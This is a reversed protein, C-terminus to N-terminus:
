KEYTNEILDWEITCYGTKTPANKSPFESVIMKIYKNEGTKIIWIPEDADKSNFLSIKWRDGVVLKNFQQRVLAYNRFGSASVAISNVDFGVKDLEFSSPDLAVTSLTNYAEIGSTESYELATAGHFLQIFPCGMPKGDKEAKITRIVMDVQVNQYMEDELLAMELAGGKQSQYSFDFGIGAPNRGACVLYPNAATFVVKSDPTVVEKQNIVEDDNTESCSVCLVSLTLVIGFMLGMKALSLIKQTKM